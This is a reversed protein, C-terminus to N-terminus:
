GTSLYSALIHVSNVPHIPDTPQLAIESNDTRRKRYYFWNVMMIRIGGTRKCDHFSCREHHTELICALVFSFASVFHHVFCFLGRMAAEIANNRGYMRFLCCM